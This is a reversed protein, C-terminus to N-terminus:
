PQRTPESIHILSLGGAYGYAGAGTAMTLLYPKGAAAAALKYEKCFAALNAKDAVTGGRDLAGPYEWDIDLRAPLTPPPPPSPTLTSPRILLLACNSTGSGSSSRGGALTGQQRQIGALKGQRQQRQQFPGLVSPANAPEGASSGNPCPFAVGAPCCGM